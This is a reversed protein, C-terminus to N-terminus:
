AYPANRMRPREQFGGAAGGHAAIVADYIRDPYQEEDCARPNAGPTGSIPRLQGSMRHAWASVSKSTWFFTIFIASHNYLACNM